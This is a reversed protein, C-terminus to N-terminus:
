GPMDRGMGARSASRIRMHALQQPARAASIDDFIELLVEVLRIVLLSAEGGDTRTYGTRTVRGIREPDGAPRMKVLREVAHVQGVCHQKVQGDGDRHVAAEPRHEACPHDRM